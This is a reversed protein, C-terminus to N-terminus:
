RMNRDSREVSSLEIILLSDVPEIVEASELKKKLAIEVLILCEAQLAKEILLLSSAGLLLRHVEVRFSHVCYVEVEHVALELFLEFSELLPAFRGLLLM